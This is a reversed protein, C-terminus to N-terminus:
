QIQLTEKSRDFNSYADGVHHMFVQANQQCIQHVFDGAQKIGHGFLKGELKIRNIKHVREPCVRLTETRYSVCQEM